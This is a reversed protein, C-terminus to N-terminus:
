AATSKAFDYDLTLTHEGDAQDIEVTGTLGVLDGTGSGPVVHGFTRPASWPGMVGGHQIVFSGSRDGLRGTVRESVVYGAGAKPDNMGCFLGEATSEGELDGEFAKQITIRSLEPGDSPQDYPAPDWGTVNFSATAKM